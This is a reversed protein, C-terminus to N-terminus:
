GTAACKVTELARKILGVMEETTALDMPSHGRANKVGVDYGM